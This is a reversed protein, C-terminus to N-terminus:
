AKEPAVVFRWAGAPTSRDRVIPVGNFACRTPGDAGTDPPPAHEAPVAFRVLRGAPPAAAALDFYARVDDPHMRLEVADAGAALYADQLAAYTIQM